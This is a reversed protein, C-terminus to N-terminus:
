HWEYLNIGYKKFEGQYFTVPKYKNTDNPLLRHHFECFIDISKSNFKKNANLERVFKNLVSFEAGEIDIKIVLKDPNNKNDLNKIFEYIDVTPVTIHTGTYYANNVKDEPENKTMEEIMTCGMHLEDIGKDIYFKAFGNEDSAAANYRNVSPFIELAENLDKYSYPYGIHTERSRLTGMEFTKPQPEFTHIEWKDPNMNYTKIFHLLGGGMHTGLDVFVNKM